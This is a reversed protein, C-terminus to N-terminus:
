VQPEHSRSGLLQWMWWASRQYMIGHPLWNQWVFPKNDITIYKNNWLVQNKIIQANLTRITNLECWATSIDAYFSLSIEDNQKRNCQFMFKLNDTKLFFAAAAKWKSCTDSALRKVWAAHLSKIKIEFDIYYLLYSPDGLVRRIAFNWHYGSTGLVVLNISFCTVLHLFVVVPTM